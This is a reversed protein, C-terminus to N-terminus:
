EYDNYFLEGKNAKEVLIKAPKFREGFKNSLNELIEVAKKPGLADVYRFPGGRFPPFGLGFIAGIDGDLPSTIINEELCILAENVMSFGLRFQVEEEDMSKRQTGGFFQYMEPNIEGSKKKGNEDYLYFGKKNKRGSYGADNMTILVESTKAGPRQKYHEILEGKMIKAGVDIGVEDILTVPGVPYGFKKLARDIFLADGGEELALLCENFMTSLIRTTYFGPGDNVVICTKGQRKGLEYATAVVWDATKDYRIIELLPMKPVPSFYHMGVVLEPRKAEKAISAIPLASTNSAFICDDSTAAETEALIKRKLNIDEFVAEIVIDVRDFHEYDTQGYIHDVIAEAEPKSMVKRRLKKEMGKWINAKATAIGEMKLDKLLVKIDKKASVEAIGEGMFGAGLMALTNVERAGEWPNKKKETMGFFINILQRSEPTLILQEFLRAEADFGAKRGKEMGTKVCEIIKFPAPYNGQTQKMVMEGAKKYIVNRTVSNGELLKEVSTRKDKRQLPRKCLELAFECAARHLAEKHILRDVLGMKYAPKSFINKGTLMMDLAKQIGILRPLRQTGGGGPLLGLQVEPLALKTESGDSAMRATCALAIELGAGLCSGQIAAVIPKKSDEMEKLISHGKRTIPEFDGPKKVKKFAEIDAGAIFDKKRSILVIAKVSDDNKLDSIIGDFLEIVEPSIKNIKEGKQDLWVTAVGNGAIHISVYDAREM